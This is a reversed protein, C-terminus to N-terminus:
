GLYIDAVKVSPADTGKPKNNSTPSRRRAVNRTVELRYTRFNIANQQRTSENM